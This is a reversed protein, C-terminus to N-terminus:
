LFEVLEQLIIKDPYNNHLTLHKIQTKFVYLGHLCDTFIHALENPYEETITKLTTYIAM